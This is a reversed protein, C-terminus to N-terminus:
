EWKGGRRAAKAREGWEHYRRRREPTAAIVGALQNDTSQEVGCLYVRSCVDVADAM